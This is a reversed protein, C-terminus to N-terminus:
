GARLAALEKQQARPLARTAERFTLGSMEAAHARVFGYTREPTRKATARLVWGIAKRIFFEREGLLPAALRAFHSFDGRGALLADHEALLATRRVWFNAHKIWRDRDKALTPERACLQGVVKIALWDVHAWTDASAILQILWRADSKQLLDARLELVGIALSRLEHIDTAWLGDVLARLEARTLERHSRVVRKAEARVAPVSAGLFVLESKLYRKAGAARAPTGAASLARTADAIAAKVNM